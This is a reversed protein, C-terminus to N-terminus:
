AYAYFTLISSTNMVGIQLPVNGKVAGVPLKEILILNLCKVRDQDAGIKLPTM